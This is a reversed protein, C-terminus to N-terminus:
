VLGGEPQAQNPSAEELQNSTIVVRGRLLSWFSPRVVVTDVYAIPEIGIAPDEHIVLGPGGNREVVFAPGRWLSFRVQGIDVARGLSRQLSWQLRRGYPDANLYPAVIAGVFLVALIVGAIKWLRRKM